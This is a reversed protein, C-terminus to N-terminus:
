EELLSTRENSENDKKIPEEESEEPSAERVPANKVKSFGLQEVAELMRERTKLTIKSVDDKGLDKTHVPELCEIFITGENFVKDKFNIINSTNSVVVPLIPVQADVALHFAGKKFPGLYLEKSYSRTGEPFMWLSGKNRKMKTLARNLTHISKERNARDLFFTGSLSMFWGLFPIYKLSKKATVTCGQPFIRGLILIDLSSQHNGVLIGPMNNLLNQENRVVIKVNLLTSFTNYFARATAWQALHQKGIVTLVISALVGYFACGFFINVAVFTKFYFKASQLFGM